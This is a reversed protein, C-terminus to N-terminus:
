SARVKSSATLIQFATHDGYQTSLFLNEEGNSRETKKDTFLYGGFRDRGANKNAIM